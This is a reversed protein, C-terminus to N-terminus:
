IKMTLPPSTISEGIDISIHSEKLAYSQIIYKFVRMDRTLTWLVIDPTGIKPPIGSLRYYNAQTHHTEYIITLSVTGYM